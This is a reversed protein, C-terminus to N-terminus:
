CYIALVTITGGEWPCVRLRDTQAPPPRQKSTFKIKFLCLDAEKIVKPRNRSRNLPIGTQVAKYCKTSLLFLSSQFPEREKFISEKELLHYYRERSITGEGESSPEGKWAYSIIHDGRVRCSTGKEMCITRECQLHTGIVHM